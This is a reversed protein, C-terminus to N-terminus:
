KFRSGPTIGLYRPKCSDAGGAYVINHMVKHTRMLVDANESQLFDSKTILELLGDIQGELRDAFRVSSLTIVCSLATLCSSVFVPVSKSESDTLHSVIMPLLYDTPLYLGM